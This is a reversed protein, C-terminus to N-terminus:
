LNVSITLYLLNNTETDFTHLYRIDWFLSYRRNFKYELGIGANLGYFLYNKKEITPRDLISVNGGSVTVNQEEITKNLALHISPGAQIYPIFKGTLRNLSYRPMVPLVISKRNFAKSNTQNNVSYAEHMYFLETQLSIQGFLPANFFAGAFLHTDSAKDYVIDGSLMSTGGGVWLGYRFKRIFNPNGTRILKDALRISQPTAMIKYLNIAHEKDSGYIKNIYEAYPNNDEGTIEKYDSDGEKFYIHRGTKNEFVYVAARGTKVVQELFVRREEGQIPSPMSVFFQGNLRFETVSDASHMKKRGREFEQLIYYYRLDKNEGQPHSLKVGVTMVSDRIVIYDRQAYLSSACIPLFCIILVIIRKM